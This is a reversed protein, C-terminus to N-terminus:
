RMTKLHGACSAMHLPSCGNKCAKNTEAGHEVLLKVLEFHGEKCTVHLPQWGDVDAMNLKVGAEVLIKAV